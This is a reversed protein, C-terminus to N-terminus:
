IWVELQRNSPAVTCWLSTEWLVQANEGAGSKIKSGPEWPRTPQTVVPKRLGSHLGARGQRVGPGSLPHPICPQAQVQRMTAATSFSHLLQCKLFVWKNAWLNFQAFFQNKQQFRRRQVFHQNHKMFCIWLAGSPSGQAGKRCSADQQGEQVSTPLDQQNMGWLRWNRLLDSRRTWRCLM